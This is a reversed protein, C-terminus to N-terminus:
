LRAPYLNESGVYFAADDVWVLKAHNAFPSGNPWTPSDITRVGALAVNDCVLKRANAKPSLKAVVQKLVTAVDSLKWGNSYDAGGAKAGKDSVVITIPVGGVIKRGLAAFVREDFYAEVDYICGLMDQQSIFVSEEASDILARLANEGPNRYEYERN